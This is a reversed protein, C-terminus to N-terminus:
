GDILKILSEMLAMRQKKSAAFSRAKREGYNRTKDSRFVTIVVTSRKTDKVMFLPERAATNFLLPCQIRIYELQIRYCIPVYGPANNM